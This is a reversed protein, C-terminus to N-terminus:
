SSSLHCKSFHKELNGAAIKPIIIGAVIENHVLGYIKSSNYDKVEIWFRNFDGFEQYSIARVLEVRPDTKLNSKNAKFLDNVESALQQMVLHNNEYNQLRETLNAIEDAQYFHQNFGDQITKIGQHYKNKLFSTSEIFPAQITNTYYLAGVLLSIFIFLFSFLEKNM